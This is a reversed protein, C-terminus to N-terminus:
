LYEAHLVKPRVHEDGPGLPNLLDDWDYTHIYMLLSLLRKKYVKKKNIQVLYHFCGTYVKFYEFIFIKAM